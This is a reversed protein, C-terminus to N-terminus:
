AAGCIFQFISEMEDLMQELSCHERAYVLAKDALQERCAVDDLLRAIAQSLRVSDRPPVILGTEEHRVLEEISGVPTSIVASHCLMAQILSQPVGEHAYSPLVCIDMAQLWPVVDEQNGPMTVHSRLGCRDLAAEVNGRYPGDGVFLLHVDDRNLRVAADILFEHGKWSRITGLIGVIAKGAPLGMRAKAAAPDEAATFRNIDVGTPVSRMKELPVGNITHLSQRLKEGTTVLFDSGKHYLWRTWVNNSVPTSLHRTRLIRPRSNMARSALSVLWSDTSSHTNIVDCRRVGLLRLVALMGRPSKRHIPLAIAEVGVQQAVKYITSQAPCAIAIQHGRAM